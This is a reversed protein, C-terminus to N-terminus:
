KEDRSWAALRDVLKKLSPTSKRQISERAATRVPRAAGVDRGLVASAADLDSQTDRGTGPVQMTTPEPVRYGSATAGTDGGARRDMLALLDADQGTSRDPRGSPGRRPRTIEGERRGRGFGAQYRPSAEMGGPATLSAPPRGREDHGSMDPMRQPRREISGPAVTASVRPEAAQRPDAYGEAGRVMRRAYSRPSVGREEAAAIVAPDRRATRMDSIQQDTYRSSRRRPEASTTAVETEVPSTQTEGYGGPRSGPIGAATARKEFAASHDGIGTAATAEAEEQEASAYQTRQADTPAPNSRGRTGPEPLTGFQGLAALRDIADGQAEKLFRGM